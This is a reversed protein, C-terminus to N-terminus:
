LLPRFAPYRTVKFHLGQLVRALAQLAIRIQLNM